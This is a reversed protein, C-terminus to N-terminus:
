DILKPQMILTTPKEWSFMYREGSNQGIIDKWNFDFSIGPKDGLWAVLTKPDSVLVAGDEHNSVTIPDGNVLVAAQAGDCKGTIKSVFIGRTSVVGQAIFDTSYKCLDNFGLVHESSVYISEGDALNVLVVHQGEFSFNLETPGKTTVKMIDLEEGTIHRSTKGVIAKLFNDKPGLIVKEFQFAKKPYSKGGIFSGIKVYYSEQESDTEVKLTRKNTLSFEIM